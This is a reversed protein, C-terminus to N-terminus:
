DVYADIREVKDDIAKVLMDFYLDTMVHKIVGKKDTLYVNFLDLFNLTIYVYGKHHHGNVTMRFLKSYGNKKGDVTFNDAGWSWFKIIDSKLIQILETATFERCVAKKENFKMGVQNHEM